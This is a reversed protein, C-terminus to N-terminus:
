DGPAIPEICDFGDCCVAGCNECRYDDPDGRLEEPVCWREIEGFGSEVDEALAGTMRIAEDLSTVGLTGNSSIEPFIFMMKREKEREEGVAFGIWRSGYLGVFFTYGYDNEGVKVTESIELTASEASEVADFM